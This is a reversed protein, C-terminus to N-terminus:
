EEGFGKRIKGKFWLKNVFARMGLKPRIPKYEEVELDEISEAFFVHPILTYKSLRVVLYSHKPNRLWKPFAFAWCNLASNEDPWGKKAYIAKMCLGIGVLGILFFAAVAYCFAM